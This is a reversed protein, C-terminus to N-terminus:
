QPGINPWSLEIGQSVLLRQFDSLHTPTGHVGVPLIDHDICYSALYGVSEGINWEVPHLRYCGNTIHTTGINKCAPLLNQMRVPILSGLPIQFPLSPVDIYNDGETSPHLDINYHGIGVSDPFSEAKPLGRMEKGVHEETVTFLAKIRRSERIYPYKALGDETGVVDPRLRLGPYGTGGDPRPADTQLWYLFSLSLQRAGELHKQAISEEVECIPGLWYDIQPWNVLTIDSQYTGPAFNEKDVIRRYRFLSHHATTATDFLHATRSQLTTPIPYTFSLLKGPWAPRLQPIYDKWFAYSDPRDITHDENPLYDMAFCVSIAQMNQPKSDGQHAHLEGTVQQSESGSVYEAGSLVLLDGLETADVFISGLLVSSTRTLTNQVTVSLVRDQHADAEIAKCTLLITVRGSQRYPAIMEELVALAVRPEHCLRSVAGNGPNLHLVQRAEAKLPYNREYYHRVGQRFKRYLYTGGFSEIWWNEDPPVAQSTLQGGIWDTEETLIVSKGARAAALAAAFGGIGGGIIVIDARYEKM